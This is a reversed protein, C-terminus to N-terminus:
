ESSILSKLKRSKDKYLSYNLKTGHKIRHLTHATQVISEKYDHPITALSM